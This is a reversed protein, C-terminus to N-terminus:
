DRPCAPGTPFTGIIMPADIMSVGVKAGIGRLIARYRGASARGTFSSLWLSGDRFVWAIPHTESSGSTERVEVTLVIDGERRMVEPFEPLAVGPAHCGERVVLTSGTTVRFGAGKRRRPMAALFTIPDMVMSTLTKTADM